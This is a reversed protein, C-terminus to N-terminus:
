HFPALTVPKCFSRSFTSPIVRRLKKSCFKWFKAPTMATKSPPLSFPPSSVAPEEDSTPNRASVSKAPLLKRDFVARRMTITPPFIRRIPGIIFAIRITASFIKFNKSPRTIPKPPTLGSSKRKLGRRRPWFHNSSPTFSGFYGEAGYRLNLAKALRRNERELDRNIETLRLNTKELEGARTQWEKVQLEAAHCRSLLEAKDKESQLHLFREGEWQRRYYMAQDFDNKFKPSSLSIM